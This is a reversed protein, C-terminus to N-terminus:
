AASLGCRMMCESLIRIRPEMQARIDFVTRFSEQGRASLRYLAEPDDRCERIRSAIEEPGGSVIVIDEGNRFHINQRLPDTCFVAVGSMGAEICAGTPFGDFAGPFLVHPVNPSLIVDM